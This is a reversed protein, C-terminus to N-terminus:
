IEGDATSFNVHNSRPIYAYGTALEVTPDVVKHFCFEEPADTEVHAAIEAATQCTKVAAMANGAVFFLGSVLTILKM